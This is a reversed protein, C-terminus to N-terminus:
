GQAQLWDVLRLRFAETVGPGTLTVTRGNVAMRIGKAPSEFGGPRTEAAETKPGTKTESGPNLAKKSSKGKLVAELCAIEDEATERPAPELTRRLETMRGPTTELMRALALGLRESIATPFKLLDDAAHYLTLFARIKSRKARSASDFLALLAQKETMYVGQEVARAAIRAREYYSLGVRIENEEVMAVYADAATEPRRLLAQITAFRGGETGDHLMQLATLRRWGSILGYRDEGTQVVEIPTQQGRAEISQALVFLEEPDAVMRDRVLYGEDIQDLPLSLIMRGEDRARKVEGALDQLASAASAEGAVQAIPARSPLPSPGVSKTESGAPVTQLYDTQAPTLRKRKAM